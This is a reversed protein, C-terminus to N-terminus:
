SLPLQPTRIKSHSNFSITATITTLKRMTTILIDMLLAPNGQPSIRAPKTGSIDFATM